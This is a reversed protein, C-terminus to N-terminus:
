TRTGLQYMRYLIPHLPLSKQGAVLLDSCPFLTLLARLGGDCVAEERRGYSAAQLTATADNNM